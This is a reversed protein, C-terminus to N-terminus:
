RRASASVLPIRSSNLSLQLNGGPSPKWTHWQARSSLLPPPLSVSFPHQPFLLPPSNLKSIEVGGHLGYIPVFSLTEYNSIHRAETLPALTYLHSSCEGWSNLTIKTLSLTRPISKGGVRGNVMAAVESRIAMLSVSTPFEEPRLFSWALPSSWAKLTTHQHLPPKLRCFSANFKCKAVLKRRSFFNWKTKRFGQSHFLGSNKQREWFGHRGRM